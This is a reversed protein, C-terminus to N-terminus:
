PKCEERAVAAYAAIGAAFRTDRGEVALDAALRCVEARNDLHVNAELQRFRAEVRGEHTRPTLTGLLQLAANLEATSSGSDTLRRAEALAMLVDTTESPTTGTQMGKVAVWALAVFAGTVALAFVGRRRASIAPVRSARVQHLARVVDAASPFRSAPSSALLRDLLHQLSAPWVTGPAAASLRPAETASRSGM